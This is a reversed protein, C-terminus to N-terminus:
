YNLGFAWLPVINKYGYEIDDKIIYANKTNKIQEQAKNKGGVEFTYKGIKFDAVTSSIPKYNVSTQNFFFTERINGTNSRNDALHFALNTNDLYVKDVKGLGIIGSSQDRLRAILGADEMFAMYEELSNRSIELKAAIKSFNPKFPVSEAIVVLLQKLKRATSVSLNAFQPVDVELTLNIIQGLRIDLNDEIAMPYYGNKLYERFLSLPHEIKDTLSINNSIIDEFSHLPIDVDKYFKLYERFSFGQLSFMLARRSLDAAGKKIDLISSGTFFIKLKPYFDYINKLEVSWNKYKHIEDIFIYKGGDKYFADILDSLKNKAFYIDDASVYLMKKDNQEKIYQLAVTTKGVGRPGTLGIMRSNWPIKDFLYRKFSLPTEAILQKQKQYLSEM